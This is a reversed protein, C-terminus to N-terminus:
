KSNSNKRPWWLVLGGAIMAWIPAVMLGLVFASMGAMSNAEPYRWVAWQIYLVNTLFFSIVLTAIAVLVAVTFREM